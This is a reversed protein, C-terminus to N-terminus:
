AGKPRVAAPLESLAVANEPASSKSTSNAPTAGVLAEVLYSGDQGRVIHSFRWASAYALAADGGDEAYVVASLGAGRLIQIAEKAGKGVVLIRPTSADLSDGLAWRLHDLQIAGGAAPRPAGFLGYLADYRGGSAVAQGPGEALVQFVPGTYYAVGRTESLDVVIKEAVGAEVLALYLKELEVVYPWAATGELTSEAASFVEGAGQLHLLSLLADRSEESLGAREARRQLDAGDKLSLSELLEGRAVDDIESLLSSAIGGHGLDLVFESLGANRVAEVCVQIVELDAETGGSGILEVGAQLAQQDHRAREHQRRLVSGRYSLRAPVPRERLRTAVLRAVQPTMDPCLAVVEGREPEVFRLVSTPEIAGLGRELVDAYEFAPLSVQQYGFLEFVALVRRTLM